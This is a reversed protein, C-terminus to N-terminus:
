RPPLDITLESSGYGDVSCNARVTVKVTGIPVTVNALSRTFPINKEHPHFLTRVGLTNGAQDLVEWRDVYHSWGDDPHTITVSLAYLGNPQAEAKVDLVQPEDASASNPATMILCFVLGASLCLVTSRAFRRLRTTGFDTNFRPAAFM